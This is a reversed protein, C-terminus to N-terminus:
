LSVSLCLSRARKKAIKDRDAHTFYATNILETLPRLTYRIPYPSAETVNLWSEWRGDSPPRSGVYMSKYSSRESNFKHSMEAM